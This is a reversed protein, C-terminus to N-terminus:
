SKTLSHNVRRSVLSRRAKTKLAIKKDLVKFDNRRKDKVIQGNFEM